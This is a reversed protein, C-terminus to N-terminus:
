TVYNNIQESPSVSKGLIIPFVNLHLIFHVVSVMLKDVDNSPSVPALKKIIASLATRFYEIKMDATQLEDQNLIESKEARYYFM